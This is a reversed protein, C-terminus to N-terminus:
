PRRPVAAVAAEVLDTFRQGIIRWDYKEEVLRRGNRALYDRRAPDRLLTLVHSAFEVPDDAILIDHGPTVDLGEAGKSVAVVPTGLAMAELIKLRTGGGKRIPVVCVWAGAVAPRVDELYGTLRVGSDPGLSSLDVGSTPGTISLSVSPEQAQILPYIASLFHHMADYNAYYTLAGNFVLTKPVPQALGPRNHQCDVGNPVVEVPGRYGPLMQLSAARDQESVMTCLDFNPFLRGEFLRAKQWSAWCRLRQAPSTQERYREWMWRAGSNHEELVMPVDRFQTAYTAMVETSAVVVQFSADRAVRKVLASMEPIPLTFIPSPSFFRLRQAARSHQFPDRWVTEVRRCRARLESAEGPRATDFAFSLLTVDHRQSFADLLHYVRIKSGNDPPYPFWTSLFLAKV